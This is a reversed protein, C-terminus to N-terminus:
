LSPYNMWVALAFAALSIGVVALLYGLEGDAIGIGLWHFLFGWGMMSNSIQQYSTLIQNVYDQMNSYVIFYAALFALSCIVTVLNKRRANASLLALLWGLISALASTLLPLCLCGLLYSPLFSFGAHRTWAIGCPIMVLFSFLYEAGLLLALRSLLITRPKIPLSLLLENDKAEFLETKATFATFFFSIGFSVLGVLAFYFWAYDTAYLVSALENSMLYFLIGFTGYCYLLALIGVIMIGKGRKGVTKGLLGKLRISILKCLM